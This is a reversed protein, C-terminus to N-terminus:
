MSITRAPGEIAVFIIVIEFVLITRGIKKSLTNIKMAFLTAQHSMKLTAYAGGLTTFYALNSEFQAKQNILSNLLSSWKVDPHLHAISISLVLTQIM